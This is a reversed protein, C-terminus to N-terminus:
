IYTNLERGLQFIFDYAQYFLVVLILGFLWMCAVTFLSVATMGLAEKFNYNHVTQSGIFMLILVWLLIASSIATYIISEQLTLVNSLLENPLTFVIFPVLAYANITFVKKFTGEGKMLSGILYNGVIWTSLLLFYSGFEVRMDLEEFASGAFIFSVVYKGTLKVLFGVIILLLPVVFKIKRDEAIDYMGNIPHRLVKFIYLFSTRWPRDNPGAVIATIGPQEIISQRKRRYSVWVRWSILLLLVITMAVGFTKVLYEMRVEWFSESYGIKDHAKEYNEMAKEFDGHKYLTKAIGQFARDFRGNMSLIQKWLEDAENYKGDKDLSIAQHVSTGFETREFRQIMNLEGDSVFLQGQSNIAIGTPRKFMGLRQSGLSYSGFRFILNGMPDYQYIRGDSSTITYIFGEKDVAVDQFSFTMNYPVWTAFDIGKFLDVGGSNLRKLQGVKLDKNVTYIFGEKDITMNTIAGPLKRKEEALQEETYYKRKLKAIWDGPVKNAGFFGAFEGEPTLQLLGQYGGKNAVYIYGRNDVTLKSPVFLYNKPLFQSQPQTIERNFTGDLNYVVIRRKGTDAVYIENSTVFVGEPSQLSGKDEKEIDPLPIIRIATGEASLHVIRNNGSDAVFMEDNDTMFLDEPSKYGDWPAIPLYVSPTPIIRGRVDTSSTYYPLDAFASSVPIISLFLIMMGTILGTKKRSM